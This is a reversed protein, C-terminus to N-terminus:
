NTVSKLLIFIFCFVVNIFDGFFRYDPGTGM